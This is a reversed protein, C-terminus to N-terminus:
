RSSDAAINAAQTLFASDAEMRFGFMMIQTAPLFVDAPMTFSTGAQRGMVSDVFHFSMRESGGVTQMRVRIAVTEDRSQRWQNQATVWQFDVLRIEGLEMDLATGRTRSLRIAFEADAMLTRLQDSPSGPVPDLQGTGPNFQLYQSLIGGGTERASHFRFFLFSQRNGGHHRGVFGIETRPFRDNAAGDQRAISAGQVFDRNAENQAFAALSVIASLLLVAFIRKM